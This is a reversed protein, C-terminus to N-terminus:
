TDTCEKPADKLELYTVVEEYRMEMHEHISSLNGDRKCLLALVFQVLVLAAEHIKGRNDRSDIKTTAKIQGYFTTIQLKM